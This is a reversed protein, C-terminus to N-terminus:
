ENQAAACCSGEGSDQTTDLYRSRAAGDRRSVFDRLNLLELDEEGSGMDDDLFHWPFVCLTALLLPVQRRAHRVQYTAEPEQGAAGTSRQRVTTVDAAAVPVPEGEKHRGGQQLRKKRGLNVQVNGGVGEKVQCRCRGVPQAARPPLHRRFTRTVLIQMSLPQTGEYWYPAPM